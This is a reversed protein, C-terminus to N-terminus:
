VTELGCRAAAKVRRLRSLWGSSSRWGAARWLPPALLCSLHDHAVRTMLKGGNILWLYTCVSFPFPVCLMMQLHKNWWLLKYKCSLCNSGKLGWSTWRGVDEERGWNPAMWGCLSWIDSTLCVSSCSHKLSVSHRNTTQHWENIQDWRILNLMKPQRWCMLTRMTSQCIRHPTVCSTHWPTICHTIM